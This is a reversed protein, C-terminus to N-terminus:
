WPCRQVDEPVLWDHTVSHPCVGLIPMISEMIQHHLRHEPHTRRADAKQGSTKSNMLAALFGATMVQSDERLTRRLGALDLYEFGKVPIRLQEVVGAGKELGHDSWCGSM